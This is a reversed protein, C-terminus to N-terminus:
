PPRSVRCDLRSALFSSCLRRRPRPSTASGTVSGPASCTASGSAFRTGLGRASVTDSLRRVVIGRRRHRGRRGPGRNAREDGHCRGTTEFEAGAHEAVSAAARDHELTAEVTARDRHAAGRATRRSVRDSSAVSMADSSCGFTRRHRSSPPPRPNRTRRAPAIGNVSAESTSPM